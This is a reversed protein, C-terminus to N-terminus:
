AYLTWDRLKTKLIFPFKYGEPATYTTKTLQTGEPVEVSVIDGFVLQKHQLIDTDDENKRITLVAAEFDMEFFRKIQGQKWKSSTDKKLYGSMVDKM